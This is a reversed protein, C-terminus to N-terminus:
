RTFEAIHLLSPLLSTKTQFILISVTNAGM